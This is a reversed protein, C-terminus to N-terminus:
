EKDLGISDDAKGRRDAKEAAMVASNSEEMIKLQTKLGNGTCLLAATSM